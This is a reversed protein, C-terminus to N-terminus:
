RRRQSRHFANPCSTFLQIYYLLNGLNDFYKFKPKSLFSSYHHPQFSHFDDLCNIRDNRHSVYLNIFALSPQRIAEFTRYCVLAIKLSIALGRRSILLMANSSFVAKPQPSFTRIPVSVLTRPWATLLGHITTFGILSVGIRSNTFLAANSCQKSFSVACAPPTAISTAM